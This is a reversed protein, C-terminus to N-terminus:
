FPLALVLKGVLDTQILAMYFITGGFISLLANKKWLHLATVLGMSIIVPIGYPARGWQVNRISYVVLIIMVMPPLYGELFQVVKPVKRERFFLFPLLRVFVTVAGIICISILITLTMFMDQIGFINEPLVNINGILIGIAYCIVVSGLRNLFSFRQCLYIVLVPFLVFFLAWFITM